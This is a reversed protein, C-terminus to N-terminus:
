NAGFGFLIFFVFKGIIQLVLLPILLNVHPGIFVLKGILVNIFLPFREGEYFCVVVGGKAFINM